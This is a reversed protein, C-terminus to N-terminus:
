RVELPLRRVVVTPADMEDLEVFAALGGPGFAVPMATAGAPFTGIYRGNPAVVDIAAPERDLELIDRGFPLVDGAEDVEWPFGNEPTRLVWLTGDWTGRLGDLVPVEEYFDVQEVLERQLVALEEDEEQEARRLRWQRYADRVRGGVPRPVLGRRLTREVEGGAGAVHIAYASSDSYALGGGPLAVFLFKPLLVPAGPDGLELAGGMLDGMGILRARGAGPPTWGSVVVEQHAEDGELFIREVERPGEAESTFMSLEVSDMTMGTVRVVRSLLGGMRDPVWDRNQVVEPMRMSVDGAEDLPFRVMREWEGAADFLHYGGHGNDPVAVRGDGLAIMRTTAGRFEGPGDGRRGFEAVLDGDADVVFIRLGGAAVSFDGIFLRGDGDFGVSTVDGLSAWDAADRGGVRFVEEFRAELAHDAVPLEIIEQAGLPVAEFAVAPLFLFMARANAEQSAPKANKADKRFVGILLTAVWYVLIAKMVLQAILEVLFDDSQIRAVTGGILAAVALFPWIWRMSKM